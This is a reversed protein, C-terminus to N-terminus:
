MDGKPIANEKAARIECEKEMIQNEIPRPEDANEVISLQNIKSKQLYDLPSKGTINDISPTMPAEPSILGEDM